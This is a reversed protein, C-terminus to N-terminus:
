WEGHCSTSSIRCAQGDSRRDAPFRCRPPYEGLSPAIDAKADLLSAGAVVLCKLNEILRKADIRSKVGHSTSSNRCDASTGRPRHLLRRRRFPHCHDADRRRALRRSAAGLDAGAKMRVLLDDLNEIGVSVLGVFGPVLHSWVIEADPSLYRHEVAVHIASTNASCGRRTEACEDRDIWPDIQRSPRRYEVRRRRM